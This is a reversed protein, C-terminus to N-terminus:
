FDFGTCNFVYIWPAALADRLDFFEASKKGFSEFVGVV